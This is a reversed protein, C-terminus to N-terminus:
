VIKLDSTAAALDACYIVAAPDRVAFALRVSIKVTKQGETFDTGNYGIELTMQKRDGIQVMNNQLVIATNAAINSNKRIILGAIAIPQGLANFSIRRDTISNDLQDKYGSLKAIDIPNMIVTDMFYKNTEGQLSMTAITDVLSPSLFMTAYTSASLFDTKKSAALIGKITTIDDGASGLIQSDVNDKIKSPAVIAIEEMAEPLDDLTEDSLTFYTGIVVAAFEVTKFLFSSQAPAAGEIKTGAGDVYTYVVLISMKPKTIGKSPMWDTVHPYITLPISVRTPDLETLRMQNVYNGNNSELMDVAIKAVMKPTNKQGLKNFYEKLSQRKNGDEDTKETILSPVAKASEQVAAILADKFTMPKEVQIKQAVEGMAKIAAANAATAEILKNVAEPLSDIEPKSLKAIKENLEAITKELDAKKVGEKTSDAILGKIELLLKEKDEM